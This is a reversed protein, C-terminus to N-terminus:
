AELRGTVALYEISEIMGRPIQTVHAHFGDTRTAVIQCWDDNLHTLWGVTVCRLHARGKPAAPQDGEQWHAASSMAADIWTVMAMRVPQSKPAPM